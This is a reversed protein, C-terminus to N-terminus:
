VGSTGHTGDEDLVVAGKLLCAGGDKSVYRLGIGTTCLVREKVEPSVDAHGLRKYAVEMESPEFAEGSRINVVKMWGTGVKQGIVDNLQVMLQAVELLQREVRTLVTMKVADM